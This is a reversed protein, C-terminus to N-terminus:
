PKTGYHAALHQPEESTTALLNKKLYYCEVYDM